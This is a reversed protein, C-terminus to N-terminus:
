LPIDDQSMDVGTQKGVWANFASIFGDKNKLGKQMVLAPAKFTGLYEDVRPFTLGAEECFAVFDLRLREDPHEPTVPTKPRVSPAKKNAPPANETGTNDMTDADKTDDICFMGNLAYKRAYSSAAGTVQSSDMGKKAEEERAYAVTSVESPGDRLTATARVYYRDGILLIEDTVTLTGTGLLPKVASLIDECSRYKYKGFSNFQGKPAHLKQQITNLLDPITPKENESM